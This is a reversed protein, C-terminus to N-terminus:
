VEPVNGIIEIKKEKLIRLLFKDKEKIRRTFEKEDMLNYNIERKLVGEAKRIAELLGDEQVKGVVFLDIDSLKKDSGKAVSGYIFALQIDKDRLNNHLVDKLGETKLIIRRLEEFLPFQKNVKYYKINGSRRPSILDIKELSQLQIQLARPNEGLLKVLQRLYFEEEPNLLFLALLKRKTESSILEKLMTYM